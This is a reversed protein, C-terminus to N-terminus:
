PEPELRSSWERRRALHDYDSGEGALTALYPQSADDFAAILAALQDLARKALEAPDGKVQLEEGAQRTGTLRWHGLYAVKDAAV